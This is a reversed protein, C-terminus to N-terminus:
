EQVWLWEGGIYDARWLGANMTGAFLADPTVSTDLFFCNIAGNYLASINYEPRREYDTQDGGILRFYGSGETGVFIDGGVGVDVFQTFRVETGDVAISELGSWTVGDFSWLEGGKTSVYLVTTYLLGGFPKSGPNTPGGAVETLTGVAGSYLWPGATVWYDAGDYAVDTIPISGSPPFDASTSEAFPVTLPDSSYWLSYDSSGGARSVFFLEALTPGAQKVFNIQINQVNVDPVQQWSINDPDDAYYVGLGTGGTTFFGAYLDGGFIEVTNCLAGSLPPSVSTWNGTETRTYLTNGAAFYRTGVKVIEHITMEDELGRDEVLSRETELTYFIPNLSKDTCAAMSLILILVLFLHVLSKM